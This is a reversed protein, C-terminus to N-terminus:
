KKNMKRTEHLIKLVEEEKAVMIEYDDDEIHDYGVLHLMGHVLLLHIREETDYIDAMAGSVGRDDDGVYDDYYEYEYEYEEDDNDDNDDVVKGGSDGDTPQVDSEIIYGKEKEKQQKENYIRDEEIRRMIYPVDIIIDGLSYLDPIHDFEPEELEGAGKAGGGVISTDYFPFSLIDTPTNINRSENNTQTMFEDDCLIVNIDYTPYQIIQRIISITQQLKEMNINPLSTQENLVTITGTQEKEKQQSDLLANSNGNDSGSDNDNINSNRKYGFLSTSSSHYNRCQNNLIIPHHFSNSFIMKTTPSSTFFLKTDQATRQKAIRPSEEQARTEERRGTSYRTSRRLHRIRTSTAVFSLNRKSHNMMMMMAMMNKCKKPGRAMDSLHQFSMATTTPISIFALVLFWSLRAVLDVNNKKREQQQQQQQEGRQHVLLKM